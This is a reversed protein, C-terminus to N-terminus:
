CLPTVYAEILTISSIRSFLDYHSKTDKSEYQKMVITRTWLSEFPKSPTACGINSDVTKHKHGVRKYWIRLLFKWGRM